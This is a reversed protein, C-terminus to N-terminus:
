KSKATVSVPFGLTVPGILGSPLLPTKPRFKSKLNTRTFTGNSDPRLDGVIRNNWLNTVSVELQNEGEKLFPGIDTRYPKKWLVGADRGNVRVAAVERVEGLDLFVEGEAPRDPLVFSKHYTATGSFYRVGPDGSKTWDTLADMTVEAPAGMAPPFAIKWPGGIALDEPVHDVTIEGTRGRATEFTYVGPKGVRASVSAADMGIVEIGGHDGGGSKGIRVLHDERGDKSFVVFVSSAPPLDVPLKVFGDGTEYLHCQTVGGDEPNWFSPSRGGAVRFRCIPSQHELTSNSVFYIDEDATERHIFDIERDKNDMNEVTFDPPVAMEALVEDLPMNWFVRGKGYSTSKLKGM